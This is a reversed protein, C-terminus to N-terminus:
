WCQGTTISETNFLTHSKESDASHVNRLRARLKNPRVRDAGLVESCLVCQPRVEGTVIIM